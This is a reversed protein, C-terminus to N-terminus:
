KPIVAHRLGSPIIGAFGQSIERWNEGGDATSFGRIYSEYVINEDVPDIAVVPVPQNTIAGTKTM